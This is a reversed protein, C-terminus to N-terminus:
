SVVSALRPDDPSLVVSGVWSQMALPVHLSSSAATQSTGLHPWSTFLFASVAQRSTAGHMGKQMAALVAPPPLSLRTRELARLHRSPVVIRPCSQARSDPDAAVTCGPAGTFEFTMLRVAVPAPPSSCTPPTPTYPKALSGTHLRADRTVLTTLLSSFSLIRTAALTRSRLWGKAMVPSVVRDVTFRPPSAYATCTSRRSPLSTSTNLRFLMM